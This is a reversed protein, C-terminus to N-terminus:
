VEVSSLSSLIELVDQSYKEKENKIKIIAERMSKPSKYARGSTVSDVIDAIMVIQCNLSIKNEKLGYPYGSGDLREHHHLVIDICEENLNYSRLSKAGLECHQRMMAKEIESLPGPRNLVEKPILMEGTDHLLAGLGLNWLQDCTYNLQIGIMLSILATELSHTYLWDIYNSLLRVHLWWPEEKSEFIINGLIMNPYDIMKENKIQFKRIFREKDVPTVIQSNANVIRTLAQMSVKHKKIREAVPKGIVEGKRILLTGNEDYIDEKVFFEEM